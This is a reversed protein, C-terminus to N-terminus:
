SPAECLVTARTTVAAAGDLMIESELVIFVRGARLSRQAVRARCEVTSGHPVPRNARIFENAHLTGPPLGVSELLVGLAFAAVALPPAADQEDYVGLTDGTAERYARSRAADLTISIPEFDHGAPFDTLSAPV